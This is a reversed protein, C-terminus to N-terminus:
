LLNYYKEAVIDATARGYHHADRARDIREVAEFFKFKNHRFMEYVSTSTLRPEKKRSYGYYDLYEISCANPILSHVITVNKKNTNVINLNNSFNELDKSDNVDFHMIREEDLLKSNSNERRHLYSWLILIAKPKLNQLIYSARRAIWDNSAGNMSINITRKQLKQELYKPWTENYPQGLGLTFSDGICWIQNTLKEPWEADRYGMSNYQYSVQDPFNLFHEKVPCHELSDIGSTLEFKNALTSLKIEEIM